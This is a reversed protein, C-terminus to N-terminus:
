IRIDLANSSKGLQHRRLRTQTRSGQLGNGALTVVSEDDSDNKASDSGDMTLFRLDRDTEESHSISCEANIRSIASGARTDEARGCLRAPERKRIRSGARFPFNCDHHNRSRGPKASQNQKSRTRERGDNKRQDSAGSMQGCNLCLCRRRWGLGCRCRRV